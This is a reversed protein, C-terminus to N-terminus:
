ALKNPPLSEGSMEQKKEYESTFKVGGNEGACSFFPIYIQVIKNEFRWTLLYKLSKSAAARM